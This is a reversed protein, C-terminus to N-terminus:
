TRSRKWDHPRQIGAYRHAFFIGGDANLERLSREIAWGCRILLSRHRGPICARKLGIRAAMDLPAASGDTAM